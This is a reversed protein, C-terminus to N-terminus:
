IISGNEMGACAEMWSGGIQRWHWDAVLRWRGGATALWIALWRRWRGGAQGALQGAVGAIALSLWAIAHHGAVGAIAQTVQPRRRQGGAIAQDGAQQSAGGRRRDVDLSRLCATAQSAEQPRKSAQTDSREDSRTAVAQQARAM